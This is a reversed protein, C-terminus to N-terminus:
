REYETWVSNTRLPQGGYLPRSEVSTSGYRPGPDRAITPAFKGFVLEAEYANHARCRLSINDSTPPGQHGHPVVHHWELFRRERCRGDDGVYACQGGDRHWVARRVSAPIHRSGERSPRGDRPAATAALKEREVDELLVRVARAVIRSVDGGTERALLDQLRSVVDRTERDVDLHMRFREPARPEISSARRHVGGLSTAPRFEEGKDADGTTRGGSGGEAPASADSAVLAEDGPTSTGPVTTAPVFTALPAAAPTAVARIVTKVPPKPALRCAIEKVEEKTKQTAERLVGRHNDETLHAALLTVTTVNVSGDALLDLVMPFRRAVRAAGIRTYAAHESLRLVETCYRFLSRSRALCLNRADLEALHAVLEVTCARDRSVLDRVHALLADDSLTAAHILLREHM